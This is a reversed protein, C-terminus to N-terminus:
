KKQILKDNEEPILTKGKQIIYIVLDADWNTKWSGSEKDINQGGRSGGGGWVGMGARLVTNPKNQYVSSQKGSGHWFPPEHKPPKPSYMHIHAGPHSPSSQWVLINM